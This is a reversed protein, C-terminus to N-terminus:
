FVREPELTAKGWVRDFVSSEGLPNPIVALMTAFVLAVLAAIWDLTCQYWLFILVLAVTLLYPLPLVADADESVELDQAKVCARRVPAEHVAQAILTCLTQRQAKFAGLVAESAVTVSVGETRQVSAVATLLSKTIASTTTDVPIHIVAREAALKLKDSGPEVGSTGPDPVTPAMGPPRPGEAPCVPTSAKGAVAVPVLGTSRGAVTAVGAPVASKAETASSVAVATPARFGWPHAAFGTVNTVYMKYVRTHGGFLRVEEGFVSFGSSCHWRKDALLHSIDRHIYTTGCPHIPVCRIDGNPLRNWRFEGAIEGSDGEFVHAIIYVLDGPRLRAWDADELYYASHNCLFTRIQAQLM